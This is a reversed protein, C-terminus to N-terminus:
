RENDLLNELESKGNANTARRDALEREFTELREAHVGAVRDDGADRMEVLQWDSYAGTIAKLYQERTM